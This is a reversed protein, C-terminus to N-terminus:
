ALEVHKGLPEGEPTYLEPVVPTRAYVHGWIKLSIEGGCIPHAVTMEQRSVEKFLSVRESGCALCKGPSRRSSRWALLRELNERYFPFNVAKEKLEDISPVDEAHVVQSCAGCWAPKAIVRHIQGSPFLYAWRALHTLFEQQSFGCGSCIANYTYSM